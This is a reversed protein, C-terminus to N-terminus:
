QGGDLVATLTPAIESGKVGFSVLRGIAQMHRLQGGHPVVTLSPSIGAGYARFGLVRFGLLEARGLEHQFVPELKAKVARRQERTAQQADPGAWLLWLTPCPTEQTSMPKQGTSTDAQM